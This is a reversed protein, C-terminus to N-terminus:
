PLADLQKARRISSRWTRADRAEPCGSRNNTLWPVPARWDASRRASNPHSAEVSCYTTVGSRGAIAAPRAARRVDPSGRLTALRCAKKQMVDDGIPARDVREVMMADASRSPALGGRLMRLDPGPLEKKYRIPRHCSGSGAASQASPARCNQSGGRNRALSVSTITQIIVGIVVRHDRFVSDSSEDPVGDTVVPGGRASGSTSGPETNRARNGLRGAPAARRDM